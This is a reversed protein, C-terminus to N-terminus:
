LVLKCREAHTDSKSLLLAVYLWTTYRQQRLDAESENPEDDNYDNEERIFLNYSGIYGVVRIVLASRAHTVAEARQQHRDTSSPLM